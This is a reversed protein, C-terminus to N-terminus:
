DGVTGKPALYGERAYVIIKKKKGKKDTLVLPQGKDDLVELKIKRFKGDRAQNTPSYGVTYQNRLFATVSQFISPLEGDFRPFWAYGGTQRAFTSLQNKAQLYVVGGDRVTFLEEAVGVCFISVDTQKLRKYTQDLTHKSFTDFGSALVLIAKKGKVDQLRDVTDLLTDFLTAERFDPFFLHAIANQVEMKNQTFDVQITPKLDFTILAVWDKPGLHNLFDYSWYKANYAFWGRGIRSFEMLIVITIPADTPAFNTITQAVGDESVRFNEKKLGTIINGDQDTVVADVNVLNSTISLQYEPKNQDGQQGAPPKQPQAPPQPPPAQQAPPKVPGNDQQQAWAIWADAPVALGITLIALAAARIWHHKKM